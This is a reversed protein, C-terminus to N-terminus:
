SDIIKSGVESIKVFITTVVAISLIYNIMLSYEAYAELILQILLITYGWVININQLTGEILEGGILHITM